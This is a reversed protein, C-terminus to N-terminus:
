GEGRPPARGPEEEGPFGPPPETTSRRGAESLHRQPRKVQPVDDVKVPKIDLLFQQDDPLLAAIRRRLGRGRRTALISQVAARRISLSPQKVFEFLSDLAARNGEAALRGVGEVATTRLITEEAVTSFSHPDRSEEPPIPTLVLSTLFPLVAPHRLESAAHVLAWRTPYDRSHCASEARVLEVLVLEPRKRMAELAERYVDEADEDAGSIAAIFNGLLAGAPGDSFRAPTPRGPRLSDSVRPAEDPV